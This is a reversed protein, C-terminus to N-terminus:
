FEDEHVNERAKKPIKVGYAECIIAAIGDATKKVADDTGGSMGSGGSEGKIQYQGLKKGTGGDLFTVDTIMHAKGAFMGLFFRSTGSVKRIGEVSIDVVLAGENSEGPKALRV